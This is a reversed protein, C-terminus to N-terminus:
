VAPGIRAGTGDFLLVHDVRATLLITGSKPEDNLWAQWVLGNQELTTLWAPGFTVARVVSWEGLPVLGASGAAIAPM